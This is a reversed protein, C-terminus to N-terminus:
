GAFLLIEGLNLEISDGSWRRYSGLRHSATVPLGIRSLHQLYHNLFLPRYSCAYHFTPLLEADYMSVITGRKMGAGTRIGLRGLVIISGALMGVGTFDGADGGVAILGRRMTNGAENGVRGFVVIEGGMIGVRSGRYASGVMHGADGRIVIRGGAMDPGVWDGAHGNVTIEGGAMGTGLHAGVNGDIIVRGRAMGSGVHKVRSLDGEIHIEADAQGRVAFFDGVQLQENGHIVPLSAIEPESLGAIRAPSIVPAELPVSPETTLSLTLAM